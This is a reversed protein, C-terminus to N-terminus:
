DIFHKTLVNTQEKSSADVYKSEKGGERVREREREVEKDTKWEDGRM